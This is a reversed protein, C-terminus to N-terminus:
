KWKYNRCNTLKKLNLQIMRLYIMNISSDVTKEYDKSMRRASSVWSNTREVVWRKELVEFGDGKKKVIELEIKHKSECERANKGSYGGDAFIKKIGSSENMKFLKDIMKPLANRDQESASHVEVVWILGLSDVILHRKRGKTRKGADYGVLLSVGAM